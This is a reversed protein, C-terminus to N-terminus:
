TIPGDCDYVAEGDCNHGSGACVRTYRPGSCTGDNVVTPDDTCTSCNDSDFFGLSYEGASMLMFLCGFLLIMVKKSSIM